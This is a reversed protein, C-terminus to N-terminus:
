ISYIKSSSDFNGPKIQQLPDRIPCKDFYVAKYADCAHMCTKNAEPPPNEQNYSYLDQIHFCYQVIRIDTTPIFKYYYCKLDVYLCAVRRELDSTVGLCIAHVTVSDFLTCYLIEYLASM